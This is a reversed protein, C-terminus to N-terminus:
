IKVQLHCTGCTVPELCGRGDTMGNQWEEDCGTALSSGSWISDDTTALDDDPADTWDTRDSLGTSETLQSPDPRRIRPSEAADSPNRSNPWPLSVFAM